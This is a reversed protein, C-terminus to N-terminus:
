FVEPLHYGGGGGNCNIAHMWANMIFIAEKVMRKKWDLEKASLRVGEWNIMRNKRMVEDTLVSQRIEM